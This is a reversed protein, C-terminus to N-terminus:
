DKQIEKQWIHAELIPLQNPVGFAKSNWDKITQGQFQSEWQNKNTSKWSSSKRVESYSLFTIVAIVSDSQHLM